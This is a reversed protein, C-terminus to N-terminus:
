SDIFSHLKRILKDLVKNDEILRKYDYGSQLVYDCLKFKYSANLTESTSKFVKYRTKPIKNELFLDEYFKGLGIKEYDKQSIDLGKLKDFDKEDKLLEKAFSVVLSVPLLNEVERVETNQYEFNKSKQSLGELHKRRKAKKSVGSVNDDDALLYIKNSIAFAKIKDGVVEVADNYEDDFLYHAILCGGYEFFVFDIDEILPSDEKYNAFAKLWYSLYKRDTPGEVWISSNAILVSSNSVGLIDLTERDPKEIQKINIKEEDEKNFQFISVDSHVMSLDLFHNSHTTFFYKLNKRRLYEDHILTKLFIKQYGPHLHNEPEDIFIWHNESAVYIPFMLLIIAQLGDGLDYLYREEEGILLRIKKKDNSPTIKVKKLNFFNLSLFEEFKDKREQVEYGEGQLYKIDDYLNLGIFVDNEIGYNEKITELYSSEPLNNSVNAYRLVPIYTKNKQRNKSNYVVESLMQNCLGVCKQVNELTKTEIGDRYVGRVISNNFTRISESLNDKISNKEIFNQYDRRNIGNEALFIDFAKRLGRININNVRGDLDNLQAQTNKIFEFSEIIPQEEKLIEFSEKNQKFIGRLFRSKGSNNSGIFFNIREFGRLVENKPQNNVSFVRKNYFYYKTEYLEKSLDDSDKYRIVINM